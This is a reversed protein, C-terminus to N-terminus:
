GACGVMHCPLLRHEQVFREEEESSDLGQALLVKLLGGRSGLNLLDDLCNHAYSMSGFRFAALGLQAMARNFLIMEWLSQSVVRDQLRSLLLLDRAQEFRDQLAYHYMQYLLVENHYMSNPRAYIEKCLADVRGLVDAEQYL